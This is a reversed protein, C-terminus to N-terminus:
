PSTVNLPVNIKVAMKTPSVATGIGVYADNGGTPVATTIPKQAGNSNLYYSQGPTLGGSEGQVVADWQATTLVLEGGTVLYFGGNFEGGPVWLGLVGADAVSSAVAQALETLGTSANYALPYVPTGPAFVSAAFLNAELGMAQVAGSSSFPSQATGAGRLTVGDPTGYSESPIPLGAGTITTDSM